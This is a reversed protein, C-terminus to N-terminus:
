ELNEKIDVSSTQPANIFTLDGGKTAKQSDEVIQQIKRVKSNEERSKKEPM